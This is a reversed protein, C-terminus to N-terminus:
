FKSNIKVIKPTESEFDIELDSETIQKDQIAKLLRFYMLSQQKPNYHKEIFEKLLVTGESSLIQKNWAKKKKKSIAQHQQKLLKLESPSYIAAHNKMFNIINDKLEQNTGNLIIQSNGYSLVLNYLNFGTRPFNKKILNAFIKAWFEDTKELENSIEALQSELNIQKQQLLYKDEM